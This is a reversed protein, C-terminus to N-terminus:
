QIDKRIPINWEERQIYLTWLRRNQLSDIKIFYENFNHYNLSRIIM